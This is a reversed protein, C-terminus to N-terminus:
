LKGFVSCFQEYQEEESDSLQPCPSEGIVAGQAEKNLEPFSWVAIIQCKVMWHMFCMEALWCCVTRYALYLRLIRLFLLNFTHHFDLFKACFHFSIIVQLPAWSHVLFFHAIIDLSYLCFSMYSKFILSHDLCFVFSLFLCRVVFQVGYIHLSNTLIVLSHCVACEGNPLNINCFCEGRDRQDFFEQRGLSALRAARSTSTPPQKTHPAKVRSM